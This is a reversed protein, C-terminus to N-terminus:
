STAVSRTIVSLSAIYSGVGDNRVGAPPTAIEEKSRLKTNIRLAEKFAEKPRIPKNSNNVQYHKILWERLEKHEWNICQAVEPSDSWIWIELEPDLVIVKSKDKWGNNNLNLQLTYEMNKDAVIIVLDKIM